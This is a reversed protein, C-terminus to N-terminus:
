KQVPHISLEGNPLSRTLSQTSSLSQFSDLPQTSSTTFAILSSSYFTLESCFDSLGFSLLVFMTGIALPSLDWASLPVAPMAQPACIIADFKHKGWVDARFEEVFVNRKHLWAQHEGASRPKSNAILRAMEPDVFKEMVTGVVSRVFGPLKVGLMTLFLAPEVPDGKLNALLGKYGDISTLAM